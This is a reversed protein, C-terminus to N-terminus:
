QRRETAKIAQSLKDLGYIYLKNQKTIRENIDPILWTNNDIFKNMVYICESVTYRGELYCEIYCKIHKKYENITM